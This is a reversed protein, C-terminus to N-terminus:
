IIWHFNRVLKRWRIQFDSYHETVQLDGIKLDQQNIDRKVELMLSTM